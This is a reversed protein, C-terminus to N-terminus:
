KSTAGPEHVPVKVNWTVLQRLRQDEDIDRLFLSSALAIPIKWFIKPSDDMELANVGQGSRSTKPNANLRMRMWFDQSVRQRDSSCYVSWESPWRTVTSAWTLKPGM